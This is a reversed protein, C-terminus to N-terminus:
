VAIWIRESRGTSTKRTDGTPTILRQRELDATRKRVAYAPLGCVAGIQEAGARGLARLASLVAACQDSAVHRVSEAAAHSTEPDRTRAHSVAFDVDQEVKKPIDQIFSLQRCDADM